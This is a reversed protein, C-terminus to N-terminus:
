SDTAIVVVSLFCPNCFGYNARLFCFIDPCFSHYWRKKLIKDEHLFIQEDELRSQIRRVASQPFRRTSKNLQFGYFFIHDQSLTMTEEAQKYPTGIRKRHKKRAQVSMVQLDEETLVNWWPQWRSTQWPLFSGKDPVKDYWVIDVQNSDRNVRKVRSVWFPYDATVDEKKKLWLIMQDPMLDEFSVSESLSTPRRPGTYTVPVVRNTPPPIDEDHSSADLQFDPAVVRLM